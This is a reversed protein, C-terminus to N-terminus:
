AEKANTKRRGESTDSRSEVEERELMSRLVQKRVKGAPTRPMESIVRVAEPWWRKPLNQAKAWEILSGLDPPTGKPEVFACIREGLREDPLGVVAVSKIQPHSSLAAEIPAPPVNVGGRIILDKLRGTITVYGEDDLQAQDGTRFFGDTTMLSRYLDEQGWYGVFVGPGRMALEGDQGVPLPEGNTDLVVLELGPLPCGATRLLKEKPTAYPSCTVGGETMGWLNSVFTRPLEAWCQEILSPPVPAGGCLFVRLPAAKPGRGKWPADALDKLFPTAAATFACREEEILRLAQEPDWVEQLVLPSGLMLAMRVGHIAGVSHGLPSAMFLPTEDSLGYRLAIGANISWASRETHMVVKPPGTTSSTCLLYDARGIVQQAETESRGVWRRSGKDGLILASCRTESEDMAATVVDGLPTRRFREAAIVVRAGTLNLVHSLSGSDMTVPMVTPVAAMRLVALFSVVWEAWNPLFIVVAEGARIGRAALEGALEGSARWLDEHTLRPGRVDVVALAGGARAVVERYTLVLPPFEWGGRNRQVVTTTRKYIM